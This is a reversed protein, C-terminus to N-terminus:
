NIYKKLVQIPENANISVDENWLSQLVPITCLSQRQLTLVQLCEHQIFKADENNYIKKNQSKLRNLIEIIKKKEKPGLHM